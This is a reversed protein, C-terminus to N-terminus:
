RGRGESQGDEAMVIKFLCCGMKEVKNEQLSPLTSPADVFFTLRKSDMENQRPDPDPDQSGFKPFTSGSGRIWRETITSGSGRIWM